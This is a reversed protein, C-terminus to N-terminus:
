GKEEATGGIMKAAAARRELEAQLAPLLEALKARAGESPPPSSGEIKEQKDFAIGYATMRQVLTSDAIVDDTLSELVRAQFDELASIKEDRAVRKRVRLKLEGPVGAGVALMVDRAVVAGTVTEREAVGKRRARKMREKCSPSCTLKNPFPTSFVEGCGGCRREFVAPVTQVSASETM